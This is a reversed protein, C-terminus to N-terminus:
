LSQEWTCTIDVGDMDTQGTVTDTVIVRALATRPFGDQISVGRFSPRQVNTASIEIQPDAQVWSWAYTYTGSGHLITPAGVQVWDTNGQSLPGIGGSDVDSPYNVFLRQTATLALATNASTGLGLTLYRKRPRAFATNVSTAIGITRAITGPFVKRLTGSADYAYGALIRRVTGVADYVHMMLIRRRANTADYAHIDPM